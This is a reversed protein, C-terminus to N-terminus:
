FTHTCKCQFGRGKCIKLFQASRSQLSILNKVQTFNITCINHEPPSPNQEPLGDVSSKNPYDELGLHSKDPKPSATVPRLDGSNGCADTMETRCPVYRTLRFGVSSVRHM